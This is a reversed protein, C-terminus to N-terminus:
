FSKKVWVKKKEKEFGIGFVKLICCYLHVRVDNIKYEHSYFYDEM